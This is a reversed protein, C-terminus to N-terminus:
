GAERWRMSALFTPTCRAKVAKVPAAHQKADYVAGGQCERCAQNLCEALCALFPCAPTVGRARCEDRFAAAMAAKGEIERGRSAGRGGPTPERERSPERSREREASPERSRRGGDGQRSTSSTSRDRRRDHEKGDASGEANESHAEFRARHAPMSDRARTPTPPLDEEHRQFRRAGPAVLSATLGTRSPPRDTFESRGESRERSRSRRDEGTGSRDTSRERGYRGLTSQTSVVAEVGLVRRQYWQKM